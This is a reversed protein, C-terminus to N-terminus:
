KVQKKYTNLLDEAVMYQGDIEFHFRLFSDYLKEMQRTTLQRTKVSSRVLANRVFEIRKGLIVISKKYQEEFKKPDYQANYNIVFYYLFHPRANKTIYEKLWKIYSEYYEILKPKDTKNIRYALLTEFITLEKTANTNVPRIMIEIPFTLKKMFDDDFKELIEHQKNKKLDYFPIPTAELVAFCSDDELMWIGDEAGTGKRKVHFIIEEPKKSAM